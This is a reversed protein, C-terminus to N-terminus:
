ASGSAGHAAARSWRANRFTSHWLGGLEVDGATGSLGLPNEIQWEGSDLAGPALATAALTLLPLGFVPALIIRAVRGPLRGDPFLLPLFTVLLPLGGGWVWTTLWAM